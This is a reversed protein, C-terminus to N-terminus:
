IPLTLAIVDILIHIIYSLIVNKTKLYAYFYFIGGLGIILIIHALAGGYTNVHMLGFILLAVITSLIISLKRSAINFLAHMMILFISARFLEEGLLQIFTMIWFVLDMNSEVAANTTPALGLNELLIGMVISYIFYAILCAIIIKIDKREPKRFLLEFRGRCVYALPLLVSLCLILSTTNDDINAPIILTAIFVLVGALLFLWDKSSLMPIGNYFPFDMNENEFRYFNNM